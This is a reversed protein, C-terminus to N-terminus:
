QSSPGAIKCPVGRRLHFYIRGEMGAPRDTIEPILKGGSISLRDCANGSPRELEHFVERFEATWGRAIMAEVYDLVQQDIIDELVVVCQSGQRLPKSQGCNPDYAGGELVPLDLAGPYIVDTQAAAPTGVACAIAALTAKLIPFRPRLRNTM